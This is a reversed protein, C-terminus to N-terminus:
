DFIRLTYRGQTGEIAASGHLLGNLAKIDNRITRESVELRSALANVSLVPTKCFLQLLNATRNDHFLSNM